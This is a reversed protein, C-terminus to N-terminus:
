RRQRANKSTNRVARSIVSKYTSPLKQLVASGRLERLQVNPDQGAFTSVRAYLAARM